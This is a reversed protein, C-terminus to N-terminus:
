GLWVINIDWIVTTKSMTHRNSFCGGTEGVYGESM